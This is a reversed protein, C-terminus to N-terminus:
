RVLSGVGSGSSKKAAARVSAHSVDSGYENM